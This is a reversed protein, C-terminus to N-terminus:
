LFDLKHKKTMMFYVQKLYTNWCPWRGQICLVLDKILPPPPPQNRFYFIYTYGDLVILLINTFGDGEEKKEHGGRGCIVFQFALLDGLLPIYGRSHQVNDVPLPLAFDNIPIQKLAAHLEELRHPHLCHTVILSLPSHVPAFVITLSWHCRPTFLLHASVAIICHTAFLPLWSHAPPPRLRHHPLPSPARASATSYQLYKGRSRCVRQRQSVVKTM